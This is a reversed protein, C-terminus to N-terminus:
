ALLAEAKDSGILQNCLSASLRSLISTTLLFDRVEDSEQELVEEVLYDIIYRNTGGFASIFEAVNEQRKLSLAALKLGTVWGETRKSLLELQESTLQINNEEFFTQAEEQNFRLDDARFEILKGKARLRALPLPPDTRSMMAVHLNSPQHELLFGLADHIHQNEIVHYDDLFLLIQKQYALVDNILNVMLKTISTQESTLSALTVQGLNKDATQLSAVLYSMFREIDSDEADLSLWAIDGEFQGAFASALSTKGFGAPASILYFGGTHETFRNVLSQRIQADTELPPVFLKTALISERM